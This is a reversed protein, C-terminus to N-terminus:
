YFNIREDTYVTGYKNYSRGYKKGAQKLEYVKEQIADAGGSILVMLVIIFGIIFPDM